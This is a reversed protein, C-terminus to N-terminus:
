EFNEMVEKRFILGWLRSSHLSSVGKSSQSNRCDQHNRSQGALGIVCSGDLQGGCDAAIRWLGGCDALFFLPTGPEAGPLSV